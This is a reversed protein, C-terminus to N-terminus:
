RSSNREQYKMLVEQYDKPIRLQIGSELYLSDKRLDPNAALIVFYYEASGYYKWSLLDLRDGFKTVIYIDTSSRDISPDIISQYFQRKNEMDLDVVAPISYSVYRGM